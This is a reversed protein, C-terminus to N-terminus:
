LAVGSTQARCRGGAVGRRGVGRDVVGEALADRHLLGLLQARRHRGGRPHEAIVPVALDQRAAVARDAAAHEGPVLFPTLNVEM